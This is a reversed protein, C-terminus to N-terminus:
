GFVAVGGSGSGGANDLVWNRTAVQRGDSYNGIYVNSDEEGIVIPLTQSTTDHLLIMEYGQSEDHFISFKKDNNNDTLYIAGTFTTKEGDLTFGDATQTFTSENFGELDSVRTEFSNATLSVSSISTELDDRTENVYIYIKDASQQIESTLVLNTVYEDGILNDVYEKTVMTNILTATQSITSYDSLSKELDTKSVMTKIGDATLKIEAKMNDQEKIFRSSFNESDLNYIIDEYKRKMIALEDRLLQVANRLQKFDMKNIDSM